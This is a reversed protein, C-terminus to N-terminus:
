KNESNELLKELRVRAAQETDLVFVLFPIKRRKLMGALHARTAGEYMKLSKTIEASYKEPYVSIFVEAREGSQNPVVNTVSFFIGEQRSVERDLFIAIEKKMFSIFREDRHNMNYHDSSQKKKLFM